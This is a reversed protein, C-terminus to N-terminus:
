AAADLIVVGTAAGVELPKGIHAIMRMTTTTSRAIQHNMVWLFRSGAFVPRQRSRDLVHEVCQRGGRREHVALCGTTPSPHAPEPPGARRQVPCPPGADTDHRDCHRREGCNSWGGTHCARRPASRARRPCTSRRTAVVRAGTTSGGPTINPAGPSASEIERVDDNRDRRGAHPLGAVNRRRGRHWGIGLAIEGNQAGIPHIQSLGFRVEIRADATRRAMTDQDEDVAVVGPELFGDITERLDDVVRADINRGYQEGPRGAAIHRIVDVVTVARDIRAVRQLRHQLGQDLVAVDFETEM